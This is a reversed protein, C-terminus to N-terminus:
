IAWIVVSDGDPLMMVIYFSVLNVAYVHKVVAIMM